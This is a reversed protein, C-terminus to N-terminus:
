LSFHVIWGPYSHLVLSPSLKVIYDRCIHSISVFLQGSAKLLQKKETEDKGHVHDAERPPHTKYVFVLFESAEGGNTVKAKEVNLATLEAALQDLYVKPRWCSLPM